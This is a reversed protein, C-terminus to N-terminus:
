DRKFYLKVVRSFGLVLWQNFIFIVFFHSAIYHFVVHSVNELVSDSKKNCPFTRSLCVAMYPAYEPNVPKERKLFIQPAMNKCQSLGLFFDSASDM